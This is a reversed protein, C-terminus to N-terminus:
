LILEGNPNMPVRQYEKNQRRKCFYVSLGIALALIVIGSVIGILTALSISESSTEVDKVRSLRSLRFTPLGQFVDSVTRLAGISLTTNDKSIM